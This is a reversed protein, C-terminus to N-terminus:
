IKWTTKERQVQIQVTNMIFNPHAILTTCTKKIQPHPTNGPCARHTESEQLQWHLVCPARLGVPVQNGTHLAQRLGGIPDPVDPHRLHRLRHHHGARHHHHALHSWLRCCFRDANPSAVYQPLATCPEIHQLTHLYVGKSPGVDLQTHPPNLIFEPNFRAM